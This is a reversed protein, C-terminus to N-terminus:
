DFPQQGWTNIGETKGRERAARWGKEGIWGGKKKSELETEGATGEKQFSKLPRSVTIPPFLPQRNSHIHQPTRKKTWETLEM